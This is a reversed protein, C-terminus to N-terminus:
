ATPLTARGAGGNSFHPGIGTSVRVAFFVAGTEVRCTGAHQSVNGEACPANRTWRSSASLLVWCFSALRAFASPCLVATGLSVLLATRVSRRPVGPVAIQVGASINRLPAFM